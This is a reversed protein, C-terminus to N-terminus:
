HGSKRRLWLWSRCRRSELRSSQLDWSTASRANAAPSRYPSLSHEMRWRGLRSAELTRCRDRGVSKYSNKSRLAHTKFVQTTSLGTEAATKERRRSSCTACRSFGFNVRDKVAQSFLRRSFWSHTSVIKEILSHIALKFAIATLGFENRVKEWGGTCLRAPYECELANAQALSDIFRRYGSILRGQFHSNRASENRESGTVGQM